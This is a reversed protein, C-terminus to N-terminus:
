AIEMGHEPKDTKEQNKMRKDSIRKRHIESLRQTSRKLMNIEPLQAVRGTPEGTGRDGGGTRGGMRGGQPATTSRGTSQTTIRPPVIREVMGGSADVLHISVWRIVLVDNSVGQQSQELALEIKTPMIGTNENM